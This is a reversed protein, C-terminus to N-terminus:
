IWSGNALASAVPLAFLAVTAFLGILVLMLDTSM